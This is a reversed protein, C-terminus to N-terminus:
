DERVLEVVARGFADLKIYRGRDPRYIRIRHEREFAEPDALAAVTLTSNGRMTSLGRRQAVQAMTEPTVNVPSDRQDGTTKSDVIVLTDDPIVKTKLPARNITRPM